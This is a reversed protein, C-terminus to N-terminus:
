VSEKKTIQILYVQARESGNEDGPIRRLVSSMTILEDIDIVGDNNKDYFDFFLDILDDLTGRLLCNLNPILETMTM